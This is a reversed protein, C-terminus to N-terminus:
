EFGLKREASLGGVDQQGGGGLEPLDEPLSRHGDGLGGVGAGLLDPAALCLGEGDAGVLDALGEVFHAEVEQDSGRARAEGGGM